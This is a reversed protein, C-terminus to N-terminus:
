KYELYLQATALTGLRMRQRIEDPTAGAESMRRAATHRLSHPSIKGASDNKVGAAVLYQTIVQRIGRTSMRKGRTRNCASLFLASKPDVIRRCALYKGVASELTRPLIAREDKSIRGKGQVVVVSEGNTRSVDEVNMKVIEAESLGCELMLMIVASDRLGIEHEDSLSDLLRQVDGNSLMARSHSKPRKNGDVFKAPNSILIKQQVLYTCFRRLATLYTSVSVDSLKRTKTLHRKYREVDKVQFRFEKNIARWHVFQRLSRQYTGKTDANEFTTLFAEILQRLKRESLRVKRERTESDM